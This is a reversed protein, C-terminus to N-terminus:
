WDGGRSPRGDILAPADARRDVRDRRRAAARHENAALSRRRAPRARRAHRAAPWSSRRCRPASTPRIRSTAAVMVRGDFGLARLCEATRSGALGAGAILVDTRDTTMLQRGPSTSVRIAGMPCERVRRPRGRADETEAPATAIGDAGMTFLTPRHRHLLRVRLLHQPRDRHPPDHYTRRTTTLILPLAHPTRGAARSRPTLIRVLTLWLVPGGAVAAVIPGGLGALDTGAALAHILALVFAAFSAYHLRRWGRQGIRKRMRFSVALMLTLWGAVVGAAVAAPALAGRVPDARGAPRFADGPRGAARGRAARGHRLGTWALTRHWGLLRSQFRPGLLRTSMGLGLWTSLTLIGFAVLGAARAVLWAM